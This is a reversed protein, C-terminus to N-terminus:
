WNKVDEFLDKWEPNMVHILIEKKSRRGAKLQKERDIAEEISYFSEYYVLKTVNYRYTFSNPYRGEKHDVVRSYLDSTVGVYLTTHNVNAMIYVCGGKTM